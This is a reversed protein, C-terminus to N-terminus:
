VPLRAPRAGPRREVLRYERTGLGLRHGNDLWATRAAAVPKLRAPGAARLRQVLALAHSDLALPDRSAILRRPIADPPSATDGAIVAQLADLITLRFSDRIAPLRYLAPLATQLNAHFEGPNHIVGYINKLAATVGSLGHTKLVPVNITMDTMETLIRSLTTPKGEVLAGPVGVYGPGGRDRVSNVTGLIRAGGFHGDRYRGGRRLEDLRRDWIIVDPGPVDLQERLSSVIARVVLPSTPLHANLCNVKIGIRTGRRYDPLLAQWPRPAGEALATLAAELMAQVTEFPVAPDSGAQALSGEDFVEVV